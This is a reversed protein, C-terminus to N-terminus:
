ALGFQLDTEWAEGHWRKMGDTRHPHFPAWGTPRVRFYERAEHEEIRLIHRMIKRYLSVDDCAEEVVVFFSAHPRIDEPYGELAKDRDTNQAPYEIRIRIANEFRNRADEAQFTWGPRYIIQGVLTVATNIDM